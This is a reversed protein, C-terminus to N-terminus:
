QFAQRRQRQQCSRANREDDWTEGDTLLLIRSVMDKSAGKKIEEIAKKPGDFIHTAM